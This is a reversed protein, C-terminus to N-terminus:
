TSLKIKSYRKCHLYTLSLSEMSDRAGFVPSLSSALFATETSSVLHLFMHETPLVSQGNGNHSTRRCAVSFRENDACPQARQPKTCPSMKQECFAHLFLSGIRLVDAAFVFRDEGVYPMPLAPFFFFVVVVVVVSFFHVRKAEKKRRSWM